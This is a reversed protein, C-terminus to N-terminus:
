KKRAVQMTRSLKNVSSPRAPATPSSDSREDLSEPRSVHSVEARHISGTGVVGGVCASVCGCVCVRVRMVSLDVRCVCECVGVRVCVCVHRSLGVRRMRVCV